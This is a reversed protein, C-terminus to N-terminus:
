FKKEIKLGQKECCNVATVVGLWFQLDGKRQEKVNREQNFELSCTRYAFWGCANDDCGVRLEGYLFDNVELGVEKCIDHVTGGQYGFAAMLAETRNM